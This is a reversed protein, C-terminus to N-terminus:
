CMKRAQLHGLMQLGQFYQFVFLTGHESIRGLYYLGQKIAPTSATKLFNLAETSHVVSQQVWQLFFANREFFYVAQNRSKSVNVSIAKMRTVALSFDDVMPCFMQTELKKM